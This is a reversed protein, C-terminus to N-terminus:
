DMHLALMCCSGMQAEGAKVQLGENDLAIVLARFKLTDDLENETVHWEPLMHASYELRSRYRRRKMLWCLLETFQVRDGIDNETLKFQSFQM